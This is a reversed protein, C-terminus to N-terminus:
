VLQGGTPIATEGLITVIKSYIQHVWTTYPEEEYENIGKNFLIWQKLMKKLDVDIHEHAHIAEVCQLVLQENVNCSFPLDGDENELLKYLKAVHTM